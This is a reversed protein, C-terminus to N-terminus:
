SGSKGCLLLGREQYALGAAHFILHSKPEGNLQTLGDQMLHFLVQEFKINSQFDEGDRLISFKDAEEGAQVQYQAVLSKGEGLCHVLHSDLASLIQSDAAEVQIANEAFRISRSQTQNNKM